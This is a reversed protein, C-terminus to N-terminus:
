RSSTPMARWCGSRGPVSSAASNWTRRVSGTGCTRLLGDDLHPAPTGWWPHACRRCEPVQDPDRHLGTRPSGGPEAPGAGWGPRAPRTKTLGELAKGLLEAGIDDLQGKFRTLGTDPNRTGITLEVRDAPDKDPKGDVDLTQAIARAFVAFPKPDLVKGTEVLVKKAQELM